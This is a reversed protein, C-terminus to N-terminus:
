ETVSRDAVAGDVDADAAVSNFAEMQEVYAENDVYFLVESPSYELGLIRVTDCTSDIYEDFERTDGYQLKHTPTQGRDSIHNSHLFAIIADASQAALLAQTSGLEARETGVGHSTFGQANRLECIGQLTTHLGGMTKKLSERAKVEASAQPPLLPLVTIVARYLKPLDDTKSFEIKRDNLITKCVSEVLAKAIDFALEPQQWIAEELTSVQRQIHTLGAVIAARAGLM